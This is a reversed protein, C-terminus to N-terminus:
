FVPLMAERGCFYDMLSTRVFTCKQVKLPFSCGSPENSSGEEPKSKPKPKEKQHAINRRKGQWPAAEKRRWESHPTSSGFGFSFSFM